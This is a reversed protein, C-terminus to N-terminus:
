KHRSYRAIWGDETYIEGSLGDSLKVIDEKDLGNDQSCLMVIDDEHQELMWLYNHIADDVISIMINRVIDIQNDTFSSILTNHLNIAEQSKMTGSVIMQYKDIVEDRVESILIKGFRDLVKNTMSYGRDSIGHFIALRELALM